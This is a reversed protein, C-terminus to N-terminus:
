DFIDEIVEFAEKLAYRLFSKKKKRSKYKTKRPKAYRVEHDHAKQPKRKAQVREVPIRKLDHLPAGCNSCTLEHRQKDLVLAAKTGCYCCTAIKQTHAM